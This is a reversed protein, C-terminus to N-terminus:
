RQQWPLGDAKWGNVNGRHGDADRNGEFGGEINFCQTYGTATMAEAAQASRVGSRCLFLLVTDKDIGGNNIRDIFDPNIDMDPFIKWQLRLPEKGLGSLDPNGVWTYEADTRVDILIAVPDESLKKWAQKVSIDGAYTEEPM